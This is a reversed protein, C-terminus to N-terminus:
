DGTIPDIQAGDVHVHVIGSTGSDVGTITVDLEANGAIAPFEGTLAIRFSEGDADLPLAQASMIEVGGPTTGITFTADGNLSVSGTKIMFVVSEPAFRLAAAGGLAVVNPGAVKLNIDAEGHDRTGLVNISAIVENIKSLIPGTDATGHDGGLCTGSVEDNTLQQIM